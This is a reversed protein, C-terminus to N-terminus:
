NGDIGGFIKRTMGSMSHIKDAIHPYAGKFRRMGYEWTKLRPANPNDWKFSTNFRKTAYGGTGDIPCGCMIAKDFGIMIMAAAAFPASGGHTYTNLKFKVDGAVDNDMAIQFPLEGFKYNKLFLGMQDGHVTAIYDAKILEAAYNVVCIKADPYVKIANDYDEKWCPNTGIILCVGGNERKM